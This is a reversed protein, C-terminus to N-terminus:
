CFLSASSYQLQVKPHVQLKFLQRLDNSEANGILTEYGASREIVLSNLNQPCLNITLQGSVWWSFRFEGELPLLECVIKEDGYTSKFALPKYEALTNQNVLTHAVGFFNSLQDIEPFRNM